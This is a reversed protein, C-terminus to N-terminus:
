PLLNKSLNRNPTHRWFKSFPHRQSSWNSFSFEVDLIGHTRTNKVFNGIKRRRQVLSLLNKQNRFLLQWKSREKALIVLCCVRAQVIMALGYVKAPYSTRFLIGKRAACGWAGKSQFFRGTRENPFIIGNITSVTVRLEYKM